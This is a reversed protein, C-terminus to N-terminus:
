KEERHKEIDQKLEELRSLVSDYVETAAIETKSQAIMPSRIKKLMDVQTKLCHHWQHLKEPDIKTM